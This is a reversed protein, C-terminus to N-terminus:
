DLAIIEALLAALPTAGPPGQTAPGPDLLATAERRAAEHLGPLQLLVRLWRQAVPQGARVRAATPVLTAGLVVNDGQLCRQAAARLHQWAAAADGLALAVRAAAEDAAAQASGDRHDAATQQARQVLPAAQQPRGLALHVRALELCAYPVFYLHGIRQATDLAREAWHLAQAAEGALSHSQALNYLNYMRQVADGADRNLAMAQQVAARAEAHRGLLNLAMSLGDLMVAEIDPLGAQRAEEMGQALHAAAEAPRGGIRAAHGLTRLAMVVGPVHGAARLTALAERALATAQERQEQWLLMWAQLALLQAGAAQQRGLTTAAQSLLATAEDLRGRVIAAWPLTFLVDRVATSDQRALAQQWAALLNDHEHALDAGPRRTLALYWRSHSDKLATAEPHEALKRRAHHLLLLHMGLRGDARASLMSKDLLAALMPLAVGAVQQAAERSFGGHFVALRAHADREAATLLAWSREFLPRLGEHMGGNPGQELLTASDGTLEAAIDAAPMMRLWSAALELALPLGELRRCIAAVHSADAVADFAPNVARARAVFLAAAEDGLGQLPLLWEGDLALRERSTVLVRLGPAAALLRLLAPGADIVAEFGDLVLLLSQAALARALAQAPDPTGGLTFGLAAAIRTPLESPATADELAVLVAGRGFRAAVADAAHRALRSKGVGGPGFVTVLRAGALMACLADLEAQRGVLPSLPQLAGASGAAQAHLAQLAAAPRLGLEQGLLHEHRQWLAQTLAPRRLAAGARLAVAMADEDLADLALLRGALEWAREADGLAAAKLVTERWRDHWQQREARLWEAFGPEQPGDDLHPMLVGAGADAAAQWQGQSWAARFADVDSGPLWRLGAASDEIGEVGLTRLEHLVKRLNARAAPARRGPWFLTALRERPVWGAEYGLLALLQHRRGPGFVLTSGDPRLWTTTGLLRLSAM